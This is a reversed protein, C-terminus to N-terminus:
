TGSLWHRSLIALDALDIRCDGNLDGVYLWDFEYPGMDVVPDGDCDGDVFRERNNLDETTPNATTDGVEICPSEGLLSFDEIAPNAFLPDDDINGNAVGGYPISGDDPDADQICSYTVTVSSSMNEYIQDQLVSEIGTNGWFICNTATTNYETFIGGGRYVAANNVLACNIITTDSGVMSYIGAGYEASNDFLLCNRLEPDGNHNFIGGGAFDAENNDFVCSVLTPYCMDNAMAGGYKALNNKFLCRKFLPDDVSVQYIRVAGGHGSDAVSATNEIFQCDIFWPDSEIQVAGGELVAYNNIFICNQVRNDRCSSRVHMGGGRNDPWSGANAYGDCITFGDLISSSNLNQANIVRYSNDTSVSVTNIDGSLITVNSQWDRQSVSTEGGAFGGYVAVGGVILDFSETRSGVTRGVGQDPKYTGAAVWVQDGSVAASLGDQLNVYADAWTSGDDAGAASSDVYIINTTVELYPRLSPDTNYNNSHFYIMSNGSTGVDMIQWGYNPYTGSHFDQVSGTVDWQVWGYSAPATITDIASANFGPKNSWTTTGESWDETVRFIDLQRGVPDVDNWHFYNMKLYASKIVAEAPIGSLDFKILSDLEGPNLNICRLILVPSSGNVTGPNLEDIFTDESPSLALLPSAILIIVIVFSRLFNHTSM